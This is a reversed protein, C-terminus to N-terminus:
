KVILKSFYPIIFQIMITSIGVIVLFYTVVIRIINTNDVVTKIGNGINELIAGLGTRYTILENRVSDKTEILLARTLAKNNELETKVIDYHDLLDEKIINATNNSEEIIKALVEGKLGNRVENGLEEQRTCIKEQSKIIDKFSNAIGELNTAVKENVRILTELESLSIGRNNNEM